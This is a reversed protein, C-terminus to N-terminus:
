FCAFKSKKGMLDEMRSEMIAKTELAREKERREREVAGELGQRDKEAKFKTSELDQRAQHLEQSLHDRESLITDRDARSVKLKEETEALAAELRHIKGQHMTQEVKLAQVQHALTDVVGRLENVEVGQLAQATAASISAVSGTPSTWGNNSNSGNATAYESLNSSSSQRIATKGGYSGTRSPRMSPSASPSPASTDIHTPLGSLRPSSPGGHGGTLHSHATKVTPTPPLPPLPMTPPPTAPTVAATSLSALRLIPSMRDTSQRNMLPSSASRSLESDSVKHQIGLGVGAGASASTTLVPSGGTADNAKQLEAIKEELFKIHKAQQILTSEHRGPRVQNTGNLPTTASSSQQVSSVTSWSQRPTALTDEPRFGGGLNESSSTSSKHRLTQENEEHILGVPSPSGNRDLRETRDRFNRVHAEQQQQQQQQRELVHQLKISEQERELNLVKEQLSHNKENLEAVIQSLEESSQLAQDRETKLAALQAKTASSSASSPHLGGERHRASYSSALSSALSTTSKNSPKLLNREELISELENIKLKMEEEADEFATAADSFESALSELDQSLREIEKENERVLARYRSKEKELRQITATPDEGNALNVTSNMSGPRSSPPSREALRTQLLEITALHVALNNQVSRIEEDVSQHRREAEELRTEAEDRDAEALKVRRELAQLEQAHEEHRTSHDDEAVLSEAELLTIKEKLEFLVAEQEKTKAQSVSLQERVETLEEQVKAALAVSESSGGLTSELDQVKKELEQIVAAKSELALSHDKVRGELEQELELKMALTGEHAAVRGELAAILEAKEQVLASHEEVQKELVLIKERDATWQEQITDRDTELESARSQAIALEALHNEVQTQLAEVKAREQEMKELLELLEDALREEASAKAEALKGKLEEVMQLAEQEAKTSREELDHMRALNQELEELHQRESEQSGSLRTELDSVALHLMEELELSTQHAKQLTELRENLQATEAKLEVETARAVKLESELEKIRLDSEPSSEVNSFTSGIQLQRILDEKGSEELASDTRVHHAAKQLSGLEAVMAEHRSKEAALEKELTIKAQELEQILSDNSESSEASREEQIQRLAEAKVDVEKQHRQCQEELDQIRGLLVLVEQDKVDTSADSLAPTHIQQHHHLSEEREKLAKQVQDQVAAQEQALREELESIYKEGKIKRDEAEKLQGQVKQLATELETQLQLQEPTPSSPASRFSQDRKQRQLTRNEDEVVDLRGQQEELILESHNLAAQTMALHTELGSIVKEYEEIVPEVFEQFSKSDQVSSPILASTNPRAATVPAGAVKNSSNNHNNAENANLTQNSLSNKLVITQTSSSEDSYRSDGDDEEEQVSDLYGHSIDTSISERSHFHNLKRSPPSPSPTLGRDSDLLGSKSPTPSGAAAEVGAAVAAAAAAASKEKLVKIELKLKQIISRLYEPNDMNTEQNLSSTNKINRARNAYKLTNLTEGLNLESPSVCAIMLALANGGLSDQLLRTLKSDRYPVHSAKKSPDGLASIVNGLAHLGANISIGEKARDGIASTRKLRESGALDVFHFKSSLTVWDGEPEPLFAEDHHLTALSSSSSSATLTDTAMASQRKLKSGPAVIGSVFPAPISSPTSGVLSTPTGPRPSSLSSPSGPSLSNGASGPLPLHGLSPTKAHARRFAPSNNQGVESAPPPHTPVFKEQRLTISFIAHSRSSKENMETSHTQRNQSGFWLLHIVEEVSSVVIEQVGTWFINGKADERITVPPRFDGKVLLDILDENYIEVFSVRFTTKSPPIRYGPYVPPPRKAEMFLQNMARPIIGESPSGRDDTSPAGTGMTYTKGSSTQGYAMITVNYGELFKDVMRKVSGQYVDEQSSGTGFIHDFTFHRQLPVVVVQQPQQQQSDCNSGTGSYGNLPPTSSREILSLVETEPRQRTRNVGLKSENVLPRIRLAVQVSTELAQVSPSGQVQPQGAM